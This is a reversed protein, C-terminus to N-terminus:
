GGAAFQYNGSNSKANIFSLSDFNLTIQFINALQGMYGQM